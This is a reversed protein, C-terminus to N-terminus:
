LGVEVDSPRDLMQLLRCVKKNGLVKRAHVDSIISRFYHHTGKWRLKCISAVPTEPRLDEEPVDKMRVWKTMALYFGPGQFGNAAVATPLTVYSNGGTYWNVEAQFGQMLKTGEIIRILQFSDKSPPVSTSPAKRLFAVCENFPKLYKARSVTWKTTKLLKPRRVPKARSQPTADRSQPKKAKAM